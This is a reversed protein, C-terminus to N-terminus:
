NFPNINQIGAEIADAIESKENEFAIILKPSVGLCLIANQFKNVKGNGGSFQRFFFNSFKDTLGHYSLTMIARDERCNTVLVTKNTKSYQILLDAVSKNLKTDPLHEKYYEEKQQIIKEFLTETLNPVVRKLSSRNFRENPKYPIGTDTQIVSQIAKLYSLYNAFNTDVLTGDMDFFLITDAEIKIDM